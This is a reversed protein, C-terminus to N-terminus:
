GEKEEKEQIKSGILSLFIKVGRESVREMERLIGERVYNPELLGLECWCAFNGRSKMMDCYAWMADQLQEYYQKIFVHGVGKYRRLHEEILAVIRVLDNLYTRIVAAILTEEPPLKTGNRFKSDRGQM